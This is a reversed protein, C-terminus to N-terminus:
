GDAYLVQDPGEVLPIAPLPDVAPGQLVDGTHADYVSGHCPCVFQYRSKAFGVTCGEHTCIASFAAFTGEEPQLAFAPQHTAPDTFAIAGGVPVSDASGVATGQPVTGATASTAPSVTTSTSARGPVLVARPPGGQPGADEEPTVLRGIVADLGGTALVVVGAAGAIAARGLLRRRHKEVGSDGGTNRTSRHGLVGDLSVLVAGGFVFPTWAFLFVIDSGYYYPWTHFSITLFFILSLVAGGAAAVRVWLGVLMGFGVSIEALAVLVGFLVPDHQALTVLPRVPTSRAVGQLQQQISGAAQADFFRRSALKQLGAFVFTAGLFVRLLLTAGRPSGLQRWGIGLAHGRSATKHVARREEPPDTTTVM